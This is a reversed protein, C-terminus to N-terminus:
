DKETHQIDDMRLVVMENQTKRKIKGYLRGRLVHGARKILDQGSAEACYFSGAFPDDFLYRPSSLLILM